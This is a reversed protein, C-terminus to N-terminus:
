SGAPSRPRALKADLARLVNTPVLGSVDGGLAAVEKVLRSSTYCHEESAMVFLTEVEPRLHRNMMAMQFEYEFDAVARLGRLIARAGAREVYDVLLGSFADAVVRPTRTAERIMRVREPPSFLATDKHANFAVAVIVRDFLELGRRVIDLHGSTLPDFSGPFVAIRAKAKRKM